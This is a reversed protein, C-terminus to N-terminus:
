EYRALQREERIYFGNKGRFSRSRIPLWRTYDSLELYVANKSGTLQERDIRATVSNRLRNYARQDGKGPFLRSGEPNLAYSRGIKWSKDLFSDKEPAIFM